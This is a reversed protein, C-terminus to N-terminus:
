ARQERGHWERFAAQLLGSSTHQAVAECACEVRAPWDRIGLTHLEALLSSACAQCQPSGGLQSRHAAEVWSLALRGVEQKQKAGLYQLM